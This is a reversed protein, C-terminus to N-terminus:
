IGVFGMTAKRLMKNVGLRNALKHALVGGLVPLWGSMLEDLKFKKETISYGTMRASLRAVGEMPGQQQFGQVAYIATPAFGALIALSIGAKARRHARAPRRYVIRRRALARTAM